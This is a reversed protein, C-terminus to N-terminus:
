HIILYNETETLTQTLNTNDQSLIKKKSLSRIISQIEKAIILSNLIKIEQNISPTLKLYKKWTYVQNLKYLKDNEM